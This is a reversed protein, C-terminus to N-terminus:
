ARCRSRSRRRAARPAAASSGASRCTSSCKRAAAPPIPWGGSTAATCGGRCRVAGPAPQRAPALGPWCMCRGARRPCASSPWAPWTLPWSPSLKLIARRDHDCFGRDPCWAGRRGGVDRCNRWLWKGIATSVYAGLRGQSRDETMEIRVLRSPWSHLNAHQRSARGAVTRRSRPKVYHDQSARLHRQEAQERRAQDWDRM